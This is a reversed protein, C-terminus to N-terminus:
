LRIDDYITTFAQAAAEEWTPHRFDTTDKDSIQPRAKSNTLWEKMATYWSEEDNPPLRRLLRSRLEPVIGVNSALIPKGRALAEIVPLGYGEYQSPYICFQAQNYLCALEEDDSDDLVAIHQHSRLSKILDGVMWGARGVLVLVVNLKQPIGEQVLRSWVRKALEHGKRPEITSVFLVCSSSHPLVAHLAPTDFDGSFNFGLPIKRIPGVEIGNASCYQSIDNAVVNSCVLNLSAIEFVQDFHRRLSTVDRPAFFHPFKLPIVDHCLSIFDLEVRQKQKCLVAVNSHEWNAGTFLVRDGPQFVVPAGVLAEVPVVARQQGDSSILLRRYKGGALIRQIIYNIHRLRASKNALLSVGATRLAMRRFQTLWLFAPLIARPVRDTKRRRSGSANPMGTTDVTILGELLTSLHQQRVEQYIQLIPNFFVFQCNQDHKIAWKAFEREVRVIGVPPGFWRMSTSIDFLLRRVM